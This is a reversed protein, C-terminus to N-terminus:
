VVECSSRRRRRRPSCRPCARADGKMRSMRRMRAGPMAATFIGTKMAVKAQLGKNPQLDMVHAVAEM